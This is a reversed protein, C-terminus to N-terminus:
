RRLLSASCSHRLLDSSPTWQWDLNSFHDHNMHNLSRSDRVPHLFHLLDTPGGTLM